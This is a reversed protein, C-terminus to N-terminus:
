NLMRLTDGHSVGNDRLCPVGGKGPYLVNFEASTGRSERKVICQRLLKWPFRGILFPHLTGKLYNVIREGGARVRPAFSYRM